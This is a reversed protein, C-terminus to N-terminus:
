SQINKSFTKSPHNSVSAARTMVNLCAILPPSFPKPTLYFQIRPVIKYQFLNGVLCCKLMSQPLCFLSVLICCYRSILEDSIDLSLVQKTETLSQDGKEKIQKSHLDSVSILLHKALHRKTGPQSQPRNYKAPCGYAGLTYELMITIIRLFTFLNRIKIEQNWIYDRQYHLHNRLTSNLKLFRNLLQQILPIPHLPVFNLTFGVFANLIKM